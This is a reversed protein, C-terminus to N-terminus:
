PILRNWSCIPVLPCSCAVTLGAPWPWQLGFNSKSALRFCWERSRSDLLCLCVILSPLTTRSYPVPPAVCLKLQGRIAHTCKTSASTPKKNCLRCQCCVTITGLTTSSVSQPSRKHWGVTDESVSARQTGIKGFTEPWRNYYKASDHDFTFRWM